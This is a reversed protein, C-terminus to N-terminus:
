KGRHKKMKEKMEDSCHEIFQDIILHIQRAHLPKTIFGADYAKAFAIESPLTSTTFLVAPVTKYDDLERLRSLTQKGDLGPMNVDLIILCPQPQFSSLTKIYSLLEGGEEFTVLEILPSFEDFSEKIFTRDDADDDAYLVLAKQPLSKTM